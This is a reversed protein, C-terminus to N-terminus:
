STFLRDLNHEAISSLIFFIQGRLILEGMYNSISSTLAVSPKFMIEVESLQHCDPEDQTKVLEEARAHLDHAMRSIDCATGKNILEQCYRKFSETIVFQREMEDKEVEMKKLIRAKFSNLEEMLQNRETQILSVLQDYKQSLESETSAVKEMFSKTATELQKIKDQNHFACESVNDVDNKCQM